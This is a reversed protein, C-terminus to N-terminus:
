ALRNLLNCGSHRAHEDAVVMADFCEPCCQGFVVRGRLVAKLGPWPLLGQNVCQLCLRVVAVDDPHSVQNAVLPLAPQGLVQDAVMSSGKQTPLQRVHDVGIHVLTRAYNDEVQRPLLHVEAAVDVGQRLSQLIAEKHVVFVLALSEEELRWMYDDEAVGGPVSGLEACVSDQLSCQFRCRYLRHLVAEHSSVKCEVELPLFVRTLVLIFLGTNKFVVKQVRPFRVWSLM